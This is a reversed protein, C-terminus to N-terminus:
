VDRRADYPRQIPPAKQVVSASMIAPLQSVGWNYYQSLVPHDVSLKATLGAGLSTWCGEYEDPILSTVTSRSIVPIYIQAAFGTFKIRGNTVNYFGALPSGQTTHAISGYASNYNTRYDDIQQASRPTGTFYSAGSYPQIEILDSEGAMDPLEGGHTLATPTGSIFANRHSHNPNAVIAQAIMLAAERVAETIINANWNQRADITTTFTGEICAEVITTVRKQVTTLDAAM